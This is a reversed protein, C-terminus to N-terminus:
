FTRCTNRCFVRMRFRRGRNGQAKSEYILMGCDLHMESIDYGEKKLLDILIERGVSGLDGTIIHDYDEPRRGFDKLNQCITDAAAPAM